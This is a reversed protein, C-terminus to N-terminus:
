KKRGVGVTAFNAEIRHSSKVNGFLYTDPKGISVGDVKVNSIKYGRNPIISFSQSEGRNVRVSGMPSISGNAGAKATIVYTELTATIVYTQLTFTATVSTSSNM